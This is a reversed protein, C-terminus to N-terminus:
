LQMLLFPLLSMCLSVSIGTWLIRRAREPHGAGMSHAVMVTVASAISNAPLRTLTGIKENVGIAASAVIGQENILASIILFSINVITVDIAMPLGIRILQQIVGPDMSFYGPPRPTFLRQRKLRLQVASFLVSLAQAIM